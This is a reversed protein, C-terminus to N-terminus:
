CRLRKLLLVIYLRAYSIFALLTISSVVGRIVPPLISFVASLNVIIILMVLMTLLHPWTKPIKLIGFEIARAMSKLYRDHKKFAYYLFPMLYFLLLVILTIIKTEPYAGQGEQRIKTYLNSFFPYTIVLFTFLLMLNLLVFRYASRFTTKSRTVVDWIFNKILVFTLVIGTLVSILLGLMRTQISAFTYIDIDEVGTLNPFLQNLEQAMDALYQNMQNLIVLIIVIMLADLLMSYVFPKWEKLQTFSKRILRLNKKMKIM